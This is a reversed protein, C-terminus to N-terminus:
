GGALREEFEALAEPMEHRLHVVPADLREPHPVVAVEREACRSSRSRPGRRSNLGISSAPDRGDIGSRRWSRPMSIMSDRLVRDRL